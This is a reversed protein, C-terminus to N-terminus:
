KSFLIFDTSSKEESYCRKRGDDGRAAWIRNGIRGSDGASSNLDHTSDEKGKKESVTREEGGPATAPELPQSVTRDM